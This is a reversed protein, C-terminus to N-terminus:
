ETHTGAKALIVTKSSNAFNGDDGGLRVGLGPVVTKLIDAKFVDNGRLRSDMSLM